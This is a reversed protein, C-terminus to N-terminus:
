IFLRYPNYKFSVELDYFSLSVFYAFNRVNDATREIYSSLGRKKSEKEELKPITILEADIKQTSSRARMEYM